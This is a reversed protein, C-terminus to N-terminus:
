RCPLRAEGRDLRHRHARDDEGAGCLERGDPVDRGAEGPRSDDQEGEQEVRAVQQIRCRERWPETAHREPAAGHHGMQQGVLREGERDPVELPHRARPISSGTALIVGRPWFTIAEARDVTLRARGSANGTSRVLRTAKSHFDRAKLGEPAYDDIVLLMDKLTFAKEELANATSEWSEPLQTREFHGYHSLFM